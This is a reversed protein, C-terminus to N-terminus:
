RDCPESVVTESFMVFSVAILSKVIMSSKGFVFNLKILAKTVGFRTVIIQEFLFPWVAKDTFFATVTFVPDTGAIQINVLLTLEIM